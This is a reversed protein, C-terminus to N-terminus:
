EGDAVAEDDAGDPEALDEESLKTGAYDLRIFRSFYSGVSSSTLLGEALDPPVDEYSYVGLAFEVHLVRTEPDYGVSRINSSQVATREIM